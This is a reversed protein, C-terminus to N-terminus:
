VLERVRDSAITPAIRGRHPLAATASSPWWRGAPAIAAAAAYPLGCPISTLTGSCAFQSGDRGTLYRAALGAVTGSHTAVIADAALLRDLEHAVVQPKMPRDARTGRETSHVGGTSPRARTCSASSAQNSPSPISYWAIGTRSCTSTAVMSPWMPTSSAPPGSDVVHHEAAAVASGKGAVKHRGGDPRRQLHHDGLHGGVQVALLVWGRAEVQDAQSATAQSQADGWRM